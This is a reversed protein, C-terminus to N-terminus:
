RQHSQTNQCRIMQSPQACNNEVPVTSCSHDRGALQHLLNAASPFNLSVSRLDNQATSLWCAPRVLMALDMPDQAALTAYQISQLPRRRSQCFSLCENRVRQDENEKMMIVFECLRFSVPRGRAAMYLPCIVENM